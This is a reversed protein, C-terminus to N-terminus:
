RAGGMPCVRIDVCHHAARFVLEASQRTLLPHEEFRAELQLVREVDRRDCGGAGRNRQVLLARAAHLERRLTVAEDLDPMPPAAFM